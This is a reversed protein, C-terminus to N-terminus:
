RGRSERIRSGPDRARASSSRRLRATSSRRAVGTRSELGAEDAIAIADVVHDQEGAVGVEVARRLVDLVRRDVARRQGAAGREAVGRQARREVERRRAVVVGAVHQRAPRVRMRADGRQLADAGPLEAGLDHGRCLAVVIGRVRHPHAAVRDDVEGGLPREFVAHREEQAAGVHEVLVVLQGGVERGAARLPERPTRQASHRAARAGRERRRGERARQREAGACASTTATSSAPAVTVSACGARRMTESAGCAVSSRNAAPAPARTTPTTAPEFKGGAAAPMGTTPSALAM